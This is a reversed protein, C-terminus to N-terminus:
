GSELGRCVGSRSLTGNQYKRCLKMMAQRRAMRQKEVRGDEDEDGAMEASPRRLHPMPPCGEGLDMRLSSEKGTSRESSSSATLPRWGFVGGRWRRLGGVLGVGLSHFTWRATILDENGDPQDGGRLSDRSAISPSRSSCLTSGTLNVVGRSASLNLILGSATLLIRLLLHAGEVSFLTFHARCSRCRLFSLISYLSCTAKFSICSVSSIM